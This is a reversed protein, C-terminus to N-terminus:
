PPGIARLIAPKLEVHMSTKPVFQLGLYKRSLEEGVLKPLGVASLVIVPLRIKRRDMEDLVDRGSLKPMILDLLVLDTKAMPEFCNRSDLVISVNYGENELMLKLTQAVDTENEVVLIRKM